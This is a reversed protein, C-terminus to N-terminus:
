MLMDWRRPLLTLAVAMLEDGLRGEQNPGAMLNQPQYQRALRVARRMLNAKHTEAEDTRGRSSLTELKQWQALDFVSFDMILGREPFDM